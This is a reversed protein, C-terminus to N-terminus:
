VNISAVEKRILFGAANALQDVSKMRVYENEYIVRAEKSADHSGFLIAGVRIGNKKLNRVEKAADKVGADDEYNCGLPNDKSAHIRFSDNPSADTLIIVLHEKVDGHEEELLDGIEKLM